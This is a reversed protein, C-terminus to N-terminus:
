NKVLFFVSAREVRGLSFFFFAPLVDCHRFPEQTALSYSIVPHQPTHVASLIYRDLCMCCVVVGERERDWEEGGGERGRFFLSAVREVLFVTQCQVDLSVVKKEYSESEEAFTGHNDRVQIYFFVRVCVCM